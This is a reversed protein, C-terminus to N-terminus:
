GALNEGLGWHRGDIAAWLGMDQEPVGLPTEERYGRLAINGAPVGAPAGM